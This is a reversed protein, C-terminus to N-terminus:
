SVPFCSRPRYGSIPGQCNIQILRPFGVVAGMNMVSKGEFKGGPGGAKLVPNKEIVTGQWGYKEQVVLKM